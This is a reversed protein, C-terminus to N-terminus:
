RAGRRARVLGQPRAREFAPHLAVERLRNLLDDVDQACQAYRAVADHSGLGTSSQQMETFLVKLEELHAITSWVSMEITELGQEVLARETFAHGTHCRYRKITGERIQVLSGHCEPCTYFSPTGLTRIGSELARDELAIRTEIFLPDEKAAEPTDQAVASVLTELLAPMQDIRLVHDVAVHQIASLPMSPFEADAPLQAIAIGGKEKIAWLGATGDDLAGTLVIGITRTGHYVAASRFLVDVAPRTHVERPGRSLRVRDREVLLHHDPVAVNVTGVRLPENDRAAKVPMRSVAELIAPLRSPENPALHMAILVAANLNAPLAALLKQLAGVGGASAGIVVLDRRTM